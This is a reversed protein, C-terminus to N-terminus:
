KLKFAIETQQVANIRGSWSSLNEGMRLRQMSLVASYPGPVFEDQHTIQNFRIIKTESGSIVLNGTEPATDTLTISKTVGSSSTLTLYVVMVDKSDSSPKWAIPIDLGINLDTRIAAVEQIEEPMTATAKLKEKPRDFVVEFPSVTGIPLVVEYWIQNAVNSFRKMPLGNCTLSESGTIDVFTGTSGGVNLTTLCKLSGAKRTVSTNFYLGESKVLDSNVKSCSFLALVMSFYVIRYMKDERSLPKHKYNKNKM